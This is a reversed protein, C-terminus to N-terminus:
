THTPTHTHTHTHTHTVKAAQAADRSPNGWGCGDTLVALLAGNQYAELMYSDCIPDGLQGTGPPNPHTTISNSNVLHRMSGTPLSPTYPGTVFAISEPHRM